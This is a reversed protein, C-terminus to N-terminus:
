FVRRSDILLTVPGDNVLELQMAAQFVGTEVPVASRRLRDLLAEYMRRADEPAAAGDFAPRRGKRLDGYLTFQSVILVAGGAQVIDRSMRGDEDPFVRAAVIKAAIYDIDAPGDDAAIGVLAVLGLGIQGVAKGDVTVAARRVRQIVARM